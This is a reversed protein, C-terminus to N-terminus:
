DDDIEIVKPAQTSAARSIQHGSTTRAEEEEEDDSPEEVATWSGDAQAVIARVHGKGQALLSKRIDQTYQDCGLSKPRVDQDCIPCKWHDVKTPENTKAGSTPKRSRTSLLNKLDFCELHRCRVGRVPFDCLSSSWPDRVSIRLGAGNDMQIDDDQGASLRRAIESKTRSSSFTRTAVNRLIMEHSITRISELAFFYTCNRPKNTRPVIINLENRGPILWDTLEIPLDHKFHLKRPVDMHHGNFTIYVESPWTTPYTVWNEEDIHAEAPKECCRLRMRKSGEWFPQVQSGVMDLQLKPFQALASQYLHLPFSRIGYAPDIRQPLM